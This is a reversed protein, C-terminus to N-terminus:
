EHNNETLLTRARKTVEKVADDYWREREEEMKPFVKNEECWKDMVAYRRKLEAATLYTAM